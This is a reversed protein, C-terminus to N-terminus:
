EATNLEFSVDENDPHFRQVVAPRVSKYSAIILLM